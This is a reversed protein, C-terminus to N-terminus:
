LKSWVEALPKEEIGLDQKRNTRVFIGREGWFIIVELLFVSVINQSRGAITDYHLVRKHFEHLIDKNKKTTDFGLHYLIDRLMISWYTRYLIPDAIDNQSSTM